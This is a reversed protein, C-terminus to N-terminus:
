DNTKDGKATRSSRRRADPKIRFATNKTDGGAVERRRWTVFAMAAAEVARPRVSSILVMLAMMALGRRTRVV